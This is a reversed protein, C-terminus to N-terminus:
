HITELPALLVVDHGAPHPASLMVRDQRMLSAADDASVTGIHFQLQGLLGTISRTSPDIFVCDARAFAADQFEIRLGGQPTRSFTVHEVALM